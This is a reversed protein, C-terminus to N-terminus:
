LLVEDLEVLKDSSLLGFTNLLSTYSKIYLYIADILKFKTEFLKTRADEVDILDKLGKEYGKNVAHLYLQSSKIAERYLSINEKSNNLEIM